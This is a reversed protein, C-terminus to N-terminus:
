EQFWRRFPEAKDRNLQVAIAFEREARERKGSGLWCRVLLLRCEVNTPDLDLVAQCERAGQSWESHKTLLGALHVHYSTHWPSIAIARRWYDVAAEDHFLEEAYIGATELVSEKEPARELATEITALAKLRQGLRWLVTAKSEWAPVDDPHAQVAKELLPLALELPRWDINSDRSDQVLAIALDREADPDQPDLLDQYFNVLPLKRSAMPGPSHPGAKKPKRLIRHDTSATHGIEQNPFRAMHCDICSDQKSKKLRSTKPMACPPAKVKRGGRLPSPRGTEGKGKLTLNEGATEQHCQLCRDRFFKVKEEAAPMRHPDHCSICGLGGKSAQFCRSAYMQDVHGVAQHTDTTEKASVFVARFLYVPLGPRYDFVERNRRQIRVKGLLHCQQCVAERLAPELRAPNVITDDFDELEEGIQRRRVHLEGPGHCRECGIAYGDFIPPYFHNETDKIPLARNSHCVLCAARIPRGALLFDGFGPSVDWTKEQSFWSIPSQFLYGDRNILYSRGQNGSGLSFHVEDEHETIVNGKADKRIQRHYVKGDRQKVEFLYGFKEFPNHTEPGYREEAAIQSIPLLSRGMPHQHFTEALGPHCDACVQDGVYKVDPHVNRYPTSYTLRPDKDEQSVEPKKKWKAFAVLLLVMALLIGSALIGKLLPKPSASDIHSPNSSDM